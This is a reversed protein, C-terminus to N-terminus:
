YTSFSENSFLHYKVFKFMMCDSILAGVELGLMWGTLDGTDM